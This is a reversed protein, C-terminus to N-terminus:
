TCGSGMGPPRPGTVCVTAIQQQIQHCVSGGQAPAVPLMYSPVGISSPVMGNSYNPWIQIAQRSDHEAPRSHTM